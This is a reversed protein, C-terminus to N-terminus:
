ERYTIEYVRQEYPILREGKQKTITAINGRDDYEYVEREELHNGDYHAVVIVRNKEDYEYTTKKELTGDSNYKCEKIKNGRTDYNYESKYKRSYTKITSEKIYDYEYNDATTSEKIKNGKADYKIDTKKIYYSDIGMEHSINYKEILQGISNYKYSITDFSGSDHGWYSNNEKVLQGKANYQYNEEYESLFNGVADAYEKILEGKANYEYNVTGYLYFDSALYTYDVRYYHQTVDGRQNYTYSDSLSDNIFVATVDGRNNFHYTNSVKKKHRVAEAGKVILDYTTITLSDVNGYLPTENDWGHRKPATQATATLATALTVAM